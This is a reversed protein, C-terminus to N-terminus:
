GRAVRGTKDNVCFLVHDEDKVLCELNGVDITDLNDEDDHNLVGFRDGFDNRTNAMAPAAMVVMMAAILAAVALVMLLRRM